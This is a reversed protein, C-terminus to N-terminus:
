THHSNTLRLYESEQYEAPKSSWSQCCTTGLARQCVSGHSHAPQQQHLNNHEGTHLQICRQYKIYACVSTCVHIAGPASNLQVTCTTRVMPAIVSCM